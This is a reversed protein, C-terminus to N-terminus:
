TPLTSMWVLSFLQCQSSYLTQGDNLGEMDDRFVVDDGGRIAHAFPANAFRWSSQEGDGLLM